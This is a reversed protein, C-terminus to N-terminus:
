KTVALADQQQLADQVAQGLEIVAMAYYSSWNYRTIAYFNQTGAVYSPEAEGNQLEVLALPGTHQQAAADLIVGRAQFEQASFTPLIDPALLAARDLKQLDFQVPYHTPMGPQWQFSQFYHAVSGIVDTASHFLDVHGDGDFDVAYKSWSSPMFQPMGLAGAYSGRLALPDTHTRATLVLFEELEAAFFAARAAAKPHAQPFDLALTTLADMVRYNGTQQGYLTEVGVIGVVIAAPVGYEREARALADRNDRWFRVGANIRVAEIFRSRYAAWNKAVGSAPPLSARVIGPMLHAGAIAKRVWQLDLERRTAIAQALQLADARTAYSPGSAVPRSASTKRVAKRTSPHGSKKASAGVPQVATKAAGSKASRAHAKSQTAEAGQGAQPTAATAMCSFVTGGACSALLLRALM